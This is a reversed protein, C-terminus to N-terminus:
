AINLFDVAASCDHTFYFNSLGKCRKRGADLKFTGKGKFSRFTTSNKFLHM